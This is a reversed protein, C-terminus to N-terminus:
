DRSGRGYLLRFLRRLLMTRHARYPFMFPERKLARRTIMLSRTRTYERDALQADEHTKGSESVVVEIVREANGLMWKQARRLVKGRGDFGMADWGPQVERARRAMAPVEESGLVPVTSILKGTAPNEVAITAAAAGGNTEAPTQQTACAM